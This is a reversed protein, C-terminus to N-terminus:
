PLDPLARSDAGRDAVAPHLRRSRAPGVAPEQLRATEDAGGSLHHGEAMKGARATATLTRSGIRMYSRLAAALPRGSLGHPPRRERRPDGRDRVRRAA